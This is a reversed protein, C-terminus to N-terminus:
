LAPGVLTPSDLDFRGAPVVEVKPYRKRVADLFLKADGVIVVDAQAPDVLRAAAAQAQQADVARVHEAYLDLDRINIGYLAEIGLAGARGAGTDTTRDYEGILTAKRATLEAPSVPEVGLRRVENMLLGAVEDAAENKTQAQAEFVGIDRRAELESNAGYSLGRKVRVEENLRASYGGGLVGNAVKVAYYDPDRRAISRAGVSVAAQGTGPLDIVVVRGGPSPTDGPAKPPAGEPKPWDGFAQQALAFGADPTIDGSLVLVANDPRYLRQYQAVVADRTIRKLSAPSGSTPRGYPGEGFVVRALALRGLAGPDQLALTLQDLDQLRLRDLEDQAFAPHRVVDALLALSQSLNGALGSINVQSSDYGAGTNIAGGLAEIQAAIDTASRSATGQATLDATFDALGALGQPDLTAGSRITLSATVIPLDSTKAVIVRLGNALTREVPASHVPTVPAGPPPPPQRRGEPLMEVVPISTPVKLAAAAVLPSDQVLIDNQGAPRQGEDRYRITTRRDDALYQRAVRKVDAATIGQLEVIDSNVLGADGELVITAGLEAGRGEVTERNRLIAAFLQNKAQTVEADSVGDDRLRKLEVRLAAEGQDPTKGAAMVAGVAFLGQQQHLDAESLVSQAIQQQYVLSQYLRSSKGTTLIADIVQLVTADRSAAPPVLWTMAVAPLPVNPGYADYTKPGVRPPEVATVRPLPTAPRAISGFYQDVWADLQAPDFNGVIILSANDPRYYVAHFARVDNLTAADLDAISGIGPRHYPHVAFTAEPLALAFLRGYPDALVRQRLEEEVVQRESTFDAQDVVLGGMREAEAWLLRQLHNAPIVEHYETYDDNTSANNNGGVDETLRDMYEPPMDHAGKFMLHEFLHAFGSRGAPDDKSGVGYWVQVTVNPTHRDLVTFLKLGNPLVREHLDVRPVAAPSPTQASAAGGAFLAVAAFLALTRM